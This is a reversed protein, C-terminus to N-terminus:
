KIGFLRVVLFALLAIVLLVGLTILVIREFRDSRQKRLEAKVRMKENKARIRENRADMRDMVRQHKLEAEYTPDNVDVRIEARFVDDPVKTGCFACVKAGPQISSGCQACKVQAMKVAESVGGAGNFTNNVTLGSSIAERGQKALEARKLEFQRQKEREEAQHKNENRSWLIFGVLAGLVLVVFLVAM